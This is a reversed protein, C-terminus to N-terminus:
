TGGPGDGHALSSFPPRGDGTVWGPMTFSWRYSDWIREGYAWEAQGPSWGDGDLAGFVWGDGDNNSRM